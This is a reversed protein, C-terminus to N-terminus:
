RPTEEPTSPRSRDRMEQITGGFHELIRRTVPLGELNQDPTAPSRSGSGSDSAAHSAGDSGNRPQRFLTGTEASRAPAPDHSATEASQEARARSPGATDMEGAYVDLPPGADATDAAASGPAAPLDRAKTDVKWEVSTGFIEELATTLVKGNRKRALAAPLLRDDERPAVLLKGDRFGMRSGRLHAALSQRRTAVLDLLDALRSDDLRISPSPPSPSAPAEGAPEDNPEAVRPSVRSARNSVGADPTPTPRASGAGRPRPSGARTGTSPGSGSRGTAGPGNNGRGGAPPEGGALLSEIRRVKPLEAARLWAVELAVSGFESRRVMAESTLLLQLVQLLGEYSGRRVTEALAEAEEGPLDVSTPDGGMALHLGDRCFSLFQGYVHHPDWGRADVERAVRTVTTGDGELIAGLLELFVAADFGGLLQAADEDRITGGGFTSMQDLLAVSDRVSGEGARAVLRLANDSVEIEEADALRRLHDAVVASPVRRFQFEQCRSLITAPVADIETTAFIFVLHAPPEEVIKLLADFAQRSLRHVEDLVVVKYRNNAPGYRLTETLERVQEVKSYTAADVEVVDMSGGSGIERCADCENCPEPAPGDQARCNLAKALLRAATTKGVGRIGSFLYAQAVRDDALANRLATVVHDQGVLGSFDTPRWKRALVQYSM